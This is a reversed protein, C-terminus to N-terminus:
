GAISNWVIRQSIYYSQLLHESYDRLALSVSVFHTQRWLRLLNHVHGNVGPVKHLFRIM